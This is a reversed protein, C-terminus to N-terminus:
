VYFLNTGKIKIGFEFDNVKVRVCSPKENESVRMIRKQREEEENPNLPNKVYVIDTNRKTGFVRAKACVLQQWCNQIRFNKLLM